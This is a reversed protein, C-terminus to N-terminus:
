SIFPTKLNIYTHFDIPKYSIYNTKNNLRGENKLQISKIKVIGCNIGVLSNDTYRVAIFRNNNCAKILQSVTLTEM